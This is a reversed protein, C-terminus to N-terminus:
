LSLLIRHCTFTLVYGYWFYKSTIIRARKFEARRTYVYTCGKFFRKECSYCRGLSPSVYSQRGTCFSEKKAHEGKAQKSLAANTCSQRAQTQKEVLAGAVESGVLYNVHITASLWLHMLHAVNWCPSWVAPLHWHCLEARMFFTQNIFEGRWVYWSIWQLADLESTHTGLSPLKM